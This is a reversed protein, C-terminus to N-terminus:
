KATELGEVYIGGYDWNRTSSVTNKRIQESFKLWENMCDEHLKEALPLIFDNIKYQKCAKLFRSVSDGIGDKKSYGLVIKNAMQQPILVHRGILTVYYVMPHGHILCKTPAYFAFYNKTYANYVYYPSKPSINKANRKIKRELYSTLKKTKVHVIIPAIGEEYLQKLCLLSDVGGSYMLLYDSVNSESM